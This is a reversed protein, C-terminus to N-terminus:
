RMQNTHPILVAALVIALDEHEIFEGQSEKVLDEQRKGDM